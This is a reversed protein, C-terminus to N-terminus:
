YRVLRSMPALEALALALRPGAQVTPSPTSRLLRGTPDIRFGGGVELQSGTRVLQLLAGGVDVSQEMRSPGTTEGAAAV